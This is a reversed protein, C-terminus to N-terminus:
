LETLQIIIPNLFEGRKNIVIIFLFDGDYLFVGEAFFFKVM